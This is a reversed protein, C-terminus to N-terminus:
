AIREGHETFLWTAIEGTLADLAESFTKGQSRRRELEERSAYRTLAAQKGRADLRSFPRANMPLRAYLRILSAVHPWPRAYHPKRQLQDQRQLTFLPVYPTYIHPTLASM